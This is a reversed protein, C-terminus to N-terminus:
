WENLELVWCGLPTMSSSSNSVKLCNSWHADLSCHCPDPFKMLPSNIVNFLSHMSPIHKHTHQPCGVWPPVQYKMTMLPRLFLSRILSRINGLCWAFSVWFLCELCLCPCFSKAQAMPMNHLVSLPILTKTFLSPFSSHSRHKAFFFFFVKTTKFM